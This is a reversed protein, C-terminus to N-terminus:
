ARGGEDCFSLGHSGCLISALPSLRSRRGQEGSPADQEVGRRNVRSAGVTYGTNTDVAHPIPEFRLGEDLGERVM